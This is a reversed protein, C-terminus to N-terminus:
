KASVKLMTKNMHRAFEARKNSPVIKMDLLLSLFLQPAVQKLFRDWTKNDFYFPDTKELAQEILPILKRTNPLSSFSVKSAAHSEYPEIDADTM